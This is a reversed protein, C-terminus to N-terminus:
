KGEEKEFEDLIADVKEPTLNEHYERDDIQMVPAGGCAALCEM